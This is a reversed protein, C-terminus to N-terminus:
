RRRRRYLVACGILAIFLPIGIALKLSMKIDNIKFFPMKGNEFIGIYPLDYIDYHDIMDIAKKRVQYYIEYQADYFSKKISLIECDTCLLEIEPSTSEIFDRIIMCEFPKYPTKEFHEIIDSAAIRNPSKWWTFVDENTYTKYEM